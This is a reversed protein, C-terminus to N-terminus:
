SRSQRRALVFWGAEDRRSEVQLDTDAFWGSLEAWTYRHEIPASLRDFTDLWLSRVPYSRYARLPLAELMPWRFREGLHGPVVFAVYLLLALPWSLLRLVDFPLRRTLRRLLAAARLAFARLGPTEPRSYVYILLWGGPKLLRRLVDFGTRPDPLHHLVGLCSIFDFSADAFPPERLDGRLVVANPRDRLNTVAVRAADSGELGVLTDVHGATFFTYRGMGCGADLATADELVDFPVDRFYWDWYRADDSQIDSFSSWEYGFSAFTRETLEDIMEPQASLYGDLFGHEHGSDCRLAPLGRDLSM